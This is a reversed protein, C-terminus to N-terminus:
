STPTPEEQVPADDPALTPAPGESSPPATDEAPRTVQSDPADAGTSAPDVAVTKVKFDEPYEQQLAAQERVPAHLKGLLSRYGMKGIWGQRAMRFAIVLRKRQMRRDTNSLPDFRHPNAIVSSLRISEPVSLASAPKHFYHRSAAEIGYIGDGWEIINLYIELIRDKPLAREMKWTIAAERVKRWLSQSPNLYLNKATQQSITSGGRLIKNKQLNAQLAGKLAEWDFGHHEYFKDDETTLVARILNKSIKKLPVWQWERPLTKGEAQAQEERFRLIGTSEPNQSLFEAPSPLTFWFVLLFLFGAAATGGLIKWFLRRGKGARRTATMTWEENARTSAPRLYDAM